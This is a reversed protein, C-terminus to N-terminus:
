AAMRRRALGFGALGLGFLALAAPEPVDVPLDRSTVRVDVSRLPATGTGNYYLTDGVTGSADQAGVTLNAPLAGLAGYTFWIDEVGNVGIWVQFSYTAASEGTRVADWDSVLWTNLGDTLTAIRFAGGLGLDLDTWFPALINRPSSLDPLETNASSSSTGGGVEIYGESSIGVTGWTEGAFVFSPTNFNTITDDGLSTPAVGFLSLPIHGMGSGPAVTITPVAWAPSAAFLAFAVPFVIKSVNM